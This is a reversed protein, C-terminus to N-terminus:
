RLVTSRTNIHRGDQFTDYMCRKKMMIPNRSGPFMLISVLITNKHPKCTFVDGLVSQQTAM